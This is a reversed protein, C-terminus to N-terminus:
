LEAEPLAEWGRLGELVIRRQDPTLRSLRPLVDREFDESPLDRAIRVTERLAEERAWRQIPADAM